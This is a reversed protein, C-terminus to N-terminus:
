CSESTKVSWLTVIDILLAKTGAKPSQKCVKWKRDLIQMRGLGKFDEQDMLFSGLSQLKNQASQLIMGTVNPMTFTLDASAERWVKKSGEKTCVYLKGGATATKGVRTCPKGNGVTAAHAPVAGLSVTMVLTAVAVLIKKM